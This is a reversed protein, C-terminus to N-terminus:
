KLVLKFINGSVTQEKDFAMLANKGDFRALSTGTLLWEGSVLEFIATDYAPTLAMSKFADCDSLTVTITIEDGRKVENASTTAVTATGAAFTPVSIAFILIFSILLALIKKM